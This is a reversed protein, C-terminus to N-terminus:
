QIPHRYKGNGENFPTDTSTGQAPRYNSGFGPGCNASNLGPEHGAWVTLTQGLGPGYGRTLCLIARQGSFISFIFTVKYYFPFVFLSYHMGITKNFLM